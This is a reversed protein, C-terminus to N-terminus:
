EGLATLAAAGMKIGTIFHDALINENPGHQGNNPQAYPVWVAPLGLTDIFIGLVVPHGQSPVVRAGVGWSELWGSLYEACEAVGEGM